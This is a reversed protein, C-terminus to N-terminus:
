QPLGNLLKRMTEEAAERTRLDGELRVLKNFWVIDGSRLDVLSAYGAQVGGMVHVGVLAGVMMVAVRGGSSYSDRIYVFLAYDANYREHLKGVEPGLSWDFKGDMSPLAFRPVSHLTITSGVIGHLKSLERFLDDDPNGPTARYEIMGDGRKKEEDRLVEVAYRRAADTWEAKPEQLGGATLESLQIDVPMLLIRPQHQTHDFATIKQEIPKQQACASLFALSAAAM